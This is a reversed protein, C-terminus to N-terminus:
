SRSRFRQSRSCPRGATRVPIVPHLLRLLLVFHEPWNILLISPSCFQESITFVINNIKNALEDINKSLCFIAMLESAATIDFGTKYTINKKPDITVTIQRLGRDNM